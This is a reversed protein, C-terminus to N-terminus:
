IESWGNIQVVCIPNDYVKDSLHIQDITTGALVRVQIEKEYLISENNSFSVGILLDYDKEQTNTVQFQSETLGSKTENCGGPTIKFSMNMEDQNELVMMPAPSESNYSSQGFFENTPIFFLAVIIIIGIVGGIVFKTKSPM